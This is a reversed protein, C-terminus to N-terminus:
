KRYNDLLQKLKDEFNDNEVFRDIHNEEIYKLIHKSYFNTPIDSTFGLIKKFLFYAHKSRVTLGIGWFWVITSMFLVAIAIEKRNGIFIEKLLVYATLVAFLLLVIGINRIFRYSGM